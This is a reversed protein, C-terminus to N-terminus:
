SNLQLLNPCIGVCGRKIFRKCSITQENLEQTLYCSNGEKVHKKEM